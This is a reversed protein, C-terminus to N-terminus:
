FRGRYVGRVDYDPMPMPMGRQAGGELMQVEPMVPLEVPPVDQAAIDAPPARPDQRQLAAAIRDRVARNM